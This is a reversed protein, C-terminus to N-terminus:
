AAADAAANRLDRDLEREVHNESEQVAAALQALDLASDIREILRNLEGNPHSRWWHWNRTRATAAEIQALAAFWLTEPVASRDFTIFNTLQKALAAAFLEDDPVYPFPILSDGKM